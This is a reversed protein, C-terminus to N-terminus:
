FKLKVCVKKLNKYNKQKKRCELLNWYNIWIKKWPNTALARYGHEDEGRLIYVQGAQVRKWEGDLFVEGEGEFVFEFNNIGNNAQRSINYDPYPNTIGVTARSFPCNNESIVAYAKEKEPYKLGADFSSIKSM